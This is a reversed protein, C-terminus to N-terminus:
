HSCVTRGPTGTSHADNVVTGRVTIKCAITGQGQASIVFVQGGFAQFETSWPLPVNAAHQQGQPTQWSIYEAVGPGSVDYRVQPFDGPLPDASAVGTTAALATGIAFLLTPVRRSTM